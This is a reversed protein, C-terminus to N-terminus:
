LRKEKKKKKKQPLIKSQFGPQGQFRSGGTEDVQTSTNLM